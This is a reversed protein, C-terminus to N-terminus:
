KLIGNVNLEPLYTVTNIFEGVECAYLYGLSQKTKNTRVDNDLWTLQNSVDNCVFYGNKKLESTSFHPNNVGVMVVGKRPGPVQELIVRFYLKPVPLRKNSDLYIEKMNGDRDPLALVGYTGTYLELDGYNQTMKRVNEELSKWNGSNFKEWQPAVNVYLFTTKQQNAMVFDANAAMHGRNLYHELDIYASASMKLTNQFVTKQNAKRYLNELRNKSEVNNPRNFGAPYFVSQQRQGSSYTWYSLNHHVYLTNEHETNFCIEMQEFFRGTSAPVDEYGAKLLTGGTCKSRPTATFYIDTGPDRCGIQDFTYTNGGTVKFKNRGECSGNVHNQNLLPREFGNPCIFEIQEGNRVVLHFGHTIPWFTDTRPDIYLPQNKPLDSARSVYIDCDATILIM